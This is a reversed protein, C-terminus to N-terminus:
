GAETPSPAPLSRYRRGSLGHVIKEEPFAKSCCCPSLYRYDGRVPRGAPLGGPPHGAFASRVYRRLSHHLSDLVGAQVPAGQGEAVRAHAALPRVRDARCRVRRRRRANSRRTYFFDRKKDNDNEQLRRWAKLPSKLYDRLQQKQYLWICGTRRSTSAPSTRKPCSSLPTRFRSFRLTPRFVRGVGYDKFVALKM